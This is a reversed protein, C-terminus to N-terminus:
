LLGMSKFSSTGSRGVIVHDHVVIGLKAGAERVEKTMAIDAQSPTPDGSPHNHALIIATAGLDLARKVVERPYVSTQDVTGKQQVEDRILANKRDLFFVRFQETKEYAMSARCYNLVAQWSSLLERGILEDRAMRIGAERVTKLAVVAADGIGPVERLEAPDASIVAAFSKFRDMLAKATPKTDGRPQALFLVLELMEYDPLADAGGNLFRERLRQRHGLYHPKDPV